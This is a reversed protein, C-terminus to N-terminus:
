GEREALLACIARWMRFRSILGPRIDVHMLGRVLFLGAQGEPAAKALAISETYPIINDDYGHVLLLRARLGSLDRGALNLAVIDTRITEPLGALLQPAQQPDRNTIFAYVRQGEPGLAAALDDLPADLDRMKRRAMAKLIQRDAPDSLREANSLVFVWKGYENPELYRWEGDKRYWGTTFFTLVQELDHYGGVAMVFRVQRRIEPQLAALLAPGAAYSFAVIGARGEPTLAEQETLWAFAEAVEDINGPNVRLERLSPLDPVLVGFRARALTTAFAVLRPDDKGEEAAGPVLLIGALSGEPSRYLDGVYRRGDVTFSVSQRSPAPTKEKLASAGEGAAIDALVLAAEWGRGPSCATLLVLGLLLLLRSLGRRLGIM